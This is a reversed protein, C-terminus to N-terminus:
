FQSLKVEAVPYLHGPSPEVIKPMHDNFDQIDFLVSINSSLPPQGSDKAEIVIEYRGSRGTLNTALSLAGNRPDLYFMAVFFIEIQNKIWKMDKGGYKREGRWGKEKEREMGKGKKRVRVKSEEGGRGLKEWVNIIKWWIEASSKWASKAVKWRIRREGGGRGLNKRVNIIKWRPMEASSKSALKGMKVRLITPMLRLSRTSGKVPRMIKKCTWDKRLLQPLYQLM